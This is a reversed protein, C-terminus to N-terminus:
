EWKISNVHKVILGIIISIHINFHISSYWILNVKKRLVGEHLHLQWNGNTLMLFVIVPVLFRNDNLYSFMRRWQCYNNPWALSLMSNRHVWNQGFYRAVCWRLICKADQLVVPLDLQKVIAYPISINSNFYLTYWFFSSVDQKFIFNLYVNFILTHASIALPLYIIVKSSYKM